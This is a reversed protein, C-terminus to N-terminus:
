RLTIDASAEHIPPVSTAKMSTWRRNRQGNKSQGSTSKISSSRPATSFTNSGNPNTFASSRLMMSNDWSGRRQQQRKVGEFGETQPRDEESSGSPLEIGTVIVGASSGRRHRPKRDPGKEPKRYALFKPIMILLITSMPYIWLVLTLGMYMGNTSTDRLIIIVPVAVILLELHVLILVFIWKSETYTEDVDKTRWALYATMITPIIGLAVLPTIFAAPHKTTCQGMSEGSQEDLLVRTWQIPDLVTWLTLVLIAALILAVM